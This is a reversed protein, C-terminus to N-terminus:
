DHQEKEYGLIDGPQVSTGENLATLIDVGVLIAQAHEIAERATMGHRSLEITISPMNDFVDVTVLPTQEDRGFVSYRTDGHAIDQKIVKM